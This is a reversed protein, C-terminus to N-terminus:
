SVTASVAAADLRLAKGVDELTIQIRVAKIGRRRVTEAEPQGEAAADRLAM